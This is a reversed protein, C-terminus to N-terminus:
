HKILNDYNCQSMNFSQVKLISPFSILFMKIVKFSRRIGNCGVKVYRLISTEPKKSM